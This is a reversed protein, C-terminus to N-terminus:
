WLGYGKGGYRNAFTNAIVMLVLAVVSKFLGVATSYSFEMHELGLKYVYTDIVEAVNMVSANSMNFMQDFGASLIGGTNLVMVLIVTPLISPITIRIARQFRNAGDIMAAEYMTQDIGALAAIFIVAGWGFRKWIDTTIIITIFSGAETLYSKGEGGFLEVFAGIPGDISFISVFISGLVVWSMFHPLFSVTQILKKYRLSRIENLLLAFLVSFPTATLLKIVSIVLTNRLSEVFAPDAFAKRFYKFGVWPSGMIGKNIYFDKFAISAGYMPYYNFILLYIVGPIIMLLLAKYTIIDKMLGSKRIENTKTMGRNEVEWAINMM